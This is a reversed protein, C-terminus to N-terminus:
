RAFETSRAPLTTPSGSGSRRSSRSTTPGAARAAWRARPARPAVRRDPRGDTAVRRHGRRVARHEATRGVRALDPDARGPAHDVEAGQGARACGRGHVAPLDRHRRPPRAGRAGAGQAHDRHLRAPSRDAEGVAPRVLGRRDAPRVGRRRHDRPRWRRARRDDHRADRADGTTAGGAARHVDRAQHADHPGRPLRAAVARRLRVGGGDVRLPLRPGRRHAGARRPRRPRRRPLHQAPPRAERSCWGPHRRARYTM